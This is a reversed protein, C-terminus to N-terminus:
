KVDTNVLGLLDPRYAEWFVFRNPPWLPEEIVGYGERSLESAVVAKM